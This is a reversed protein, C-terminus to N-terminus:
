EVGKVKKYEMYKLFLIEILIFYSTISDYEMQNLEQTLKVSSIYINYDSMQSLTNERSKTISLIPINRVKLKSVFDIIFKNEGSVSILIFLDDSNAIKLSIESEGYGSLDYLIKGASLFIRKLEKKISSQVMGVGYVYINTSSDIKEFIESCDKEKIRKIAEYYTNCIMEVTNLDEKAEQNEMKLYLKLEGYGKLSLKQAFRLISSRSVNCKYAIQDIVLRECEKKNNSIYNWIHFDNENLRTYHKNVLEQLRM